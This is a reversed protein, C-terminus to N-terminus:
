ILLALSEVSTKGNLFDYIFVTRTGMEQKNKAKKLIFNITKLIHLNNDSALMYNLIKRKYNTSHALELLTFCKLLLHEKDHKQLIVEFLQEVLGCELITVSVEENKSFHYLISVTIGIFEEENRSTLVKKVLKTFLTKNM